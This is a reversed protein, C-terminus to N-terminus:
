KILINAEEQSATPALCGLALMFNGEDSTGLFDEVNRDDSIVAQSHNSKLFDMGIVCIWAAFIAVVICMTRYFCKNYLIM